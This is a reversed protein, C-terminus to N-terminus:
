RKRKPSTQTWSAQLTSFAVTTSIFSDIHIARLSKWSSSAVQQKKDPPGPFTHNHPATQYPNNMVANCAELQKREKTLAQRRCSKHLCEWPAQLKKHISTTALNWLHLVYKTSKWISWAAQQKHQSTQSFYCAHLWYSFRMFVREANRTENSNCADLKKRKSTTQTWSAQLTSFAVTTSIM